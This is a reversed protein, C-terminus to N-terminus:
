GNTCVKVLSSALFNKLWASRATHDSIAGLASSQTQLGSVGSYLAGFLSM